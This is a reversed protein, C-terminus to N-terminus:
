SDDKKGFLLLAPLLLLDCYIALWLSMSILLGFNRLPLFPSAIFGLFGTGAVLTTTIMAPGVHSFVAQLRMAIDSYEKTKEKWSHLFHITDDVVIGFIISAVTVTAVSLPIGAWGMLGLILLVPLFNPIIALVGLRASRLVLGMIFSISLFAVSFSTILTTFLQKQGRTYLPVSGTVYPEKQTGFENQFFDETQEVLELTKESALTRTLITLREVDESIYNLGLSIPMPAGHETADPVTIGSAFSYFYHTIQPHSRSFNKLKEQLDDPSINKEALEIEFPTLGVGHGEIALYGSRVISNEMFFDLIYSGRQLRIAGVVALIVVLSLTLLVAWKWKELIRVWRAPDAKKYPTAAPVFFPPLLLLSTVLSFLSGVAGWIGLQQVPQYSSLTLSLFGIMTTLGSLLCPPAVQAFIDMAQQSHDQKKKTLLHIAHSMGLIMTLPPLALLIMNLRVGALAMIGTLQLGPLLGCTMILGINRAKKLIIVIGAFLIFIVLPFLTQTSRASLTDLQDTLFWVGGLHYTTPSQGLIEKVNQLLSSLEGPSSGHRPIISILNAKGGTVPEVDIEHVFDVGKINKMRDALLKDHNSSASPLYIFLPDAIKYKEIFKQYQQWHPDNDSQWVDLSNDIKSQMAWFGLFLTMAALFALALLRHDHIYQGVKKFRRSDM